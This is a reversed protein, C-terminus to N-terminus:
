EGKAKALAARAAVVLPNSYAYPIEGSNVIAELAVVLEDHCNVARLVFDIDDESSTMDCIQRDPEAASCISTASGPYDEINARIWPTHNM